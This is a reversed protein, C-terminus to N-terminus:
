RCSQPGQNECRANRLMAVLVKSQFLQQLSAGERETKHKHVDQACSKVRVEVREDLRAKTPTQLSVGAARHPEDIVARWRLIWNRSYRRAIMALRVLLRTPVRKQDTM